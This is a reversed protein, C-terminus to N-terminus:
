LVEFFYVVAMDNPNDGTDIWRGRLEDGSAFDHSLGTFVKKVNANTFTLTNNIINGALIGNKYLDIRGDVNAGAFSVSIEKLRCAVPLVIPVTDGPLLQDYGLWQNAGVTGNFATVITFRVKSVATTKAEEIAAQVNTAAFGNSSNDFINWIATRLKRVSIAVTELADKFQISGAGDLDILRSDNNELAIGKPALYDETPDAETPYIDAETGGSAPNEFKLPKVKDVM